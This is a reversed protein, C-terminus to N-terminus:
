QNRDENEVAFPEVAFLKVEATWRGGINAPRTVPALDSGPMDPMIGARSLNSVDTRRYGAAVATALGRSHPRSLDFMLAGQYSNGVPRQGVRGSQALPGRADQRCPLAPPVGATWLKKNTARQTQLKDRFGFGM